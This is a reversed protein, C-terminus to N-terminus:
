FSPGTDSTFIICNQEARINKLLSGQHLINLLSLEISNNAKNLM